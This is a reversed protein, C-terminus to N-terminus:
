AIRRRYGPVLAEVLADTEACAGVPIDAGALYLEDAVL